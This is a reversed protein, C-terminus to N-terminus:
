LAKQMVLTVETNAGIETKLVYLLYYACDLIDLYLLMPKQAVPM